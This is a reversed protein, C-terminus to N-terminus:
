YCASKPSTSEWSFITWDIELDQLKSIGDLYLKKAKQHRSEKKITDRRSSRIQRSTNFKQRAQFNALQECSLSCPGMVQICTCTSNRQVNPNECENEHKPNADSAQAAPAGLAKSSYKTGTRCYGRFKITGLKSNSSLPTFGNSNYSCPIKMKEFEQVILDVYETGKLPKQLSLDWVLNWNQLPLSIKFTKPV